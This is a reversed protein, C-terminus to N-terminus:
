IIKMFLKSIQYPQLYQDKNSQEQGENHGQYPDSSCISKTAKEDDSYSFLHM